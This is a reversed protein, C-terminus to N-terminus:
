KENEKHKKGFLKNWIPFKKTRKEFNDLMAYTIVFGNGVMSGDPDNKHGHLFFELPIDGIKRVKLERLRFMKGNELKIIADDSLGLISYNEMFRISGNKKLEFIVDYTIKNGYVNIERASITVDDEINLVSVIDAVIHVTNTLNEVVVHGNPATITTRHEKKIYHGVRGEPDQVQYKRGFINGAKVNGNTVTITAGNEIKYKHKHPNIFTLDGGTVTIKTLNDDNFTPSTINGQIIVPGDYEFSGAMVNGKISMAGNATREFEMEGLVKSGFLHRGTTNARSLAASWEKALKMQESIEKALIANRYRTEEEDGASYVHSKRKKEATNDPYKKGQKIDDYSQKIKKFEEENGGRDAHHLLALRRFAEHIEKKSAIESIGLIDYNSEPM